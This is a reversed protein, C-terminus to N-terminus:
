TRRAHHVPHYLPVTAIELARKLRLGGRGLSPTHLTEISPMMITTPPQHKRSPYTGMSSGSDQLCTSYVTEPKPSCTPTKQSQFIFIIESPKPTQVNQMPERARATKTGGPNASGAREVYTDGLSRSESGAPPFGKRATARAGTNSVRFPWLRVAPVCSLKRFRRLAKRHQSNCSGNFEQRPGICM